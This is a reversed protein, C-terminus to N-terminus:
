KVDGNMEANYRDKFAQYLQEWFNTDMNQPLIDMKPYVKGLNEFHEKYDM